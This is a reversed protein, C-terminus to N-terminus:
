AALKLVPRTLPIEVLSTREQRIWDLAESVVNQWDSVHPHEVDIVDADRRFVNLESDNRYIVRVEFRVPTLNGAM